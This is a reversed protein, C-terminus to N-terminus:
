KKSQRKKLKSKRADNVLMLGVVGATSLIM